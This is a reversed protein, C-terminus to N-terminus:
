IINFLKRIGYNLVQNLDNHQGIIKNGKNWILPLSSIICIYRTPFSKEWSTCALQNGRTFLFLYFTPVNSYCTNGVLNQFVSLNRSTALAKLNMMESLQFVSTSSHLLCHDGSDAFSTMARSGLLWRTGQKVYSIKDWFQRGNQLDGSRHSISYVQDLPELHWVFMGFCFLLGWFLCVLLLLLFRLSIQTGVCM